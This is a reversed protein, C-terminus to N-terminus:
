DVPPVTEGWTPEHVAVATGGCHPCPDLRVPSERPTGYVVVNWNSKGMPAKKAEAVSDWYGHVEPQWMVLIDAFKDGHLINAQAVAAHLNKAHVDRGIVVCGDPRQREIEKTVRADQVRRIADDLKRREAARKKALEKKKGKEEDQIRLQKELAALRKAISNSESM